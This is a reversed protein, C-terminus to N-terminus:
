PKSLEILTEILTDCLQAVLDHADGDQRRAKGEIEELEEIIPQFREMARKVALTRKKRGEASGPDRWGAIREETTKRPMLGPMQKALPTLERKTPTRPM